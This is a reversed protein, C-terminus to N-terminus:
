ALMIARRGDALKYTSFQQIRPTATAEDEPDAKSAVVRIVQFHGGGADYLQIQGDKM